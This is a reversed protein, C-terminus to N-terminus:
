KLAFLGSQTNVYVTGNAVTPSSQIPYGSLHLSLVEPMPLSSGTNYKCQSTDFAHLNGDTGGALLVNSIATPSSYNITTSLSQNCVLKNNHQLDFGYVQNGAAAYLIDYLDPCATGIYCLSQPQYEVAASSWMGDALPYTWTAAKANPDIGYLTGTYFVSWKVTRYYTASGIYVIGNFVLPSSYVDGIGNHDDWYIQGGKVGTSPNDDAYYFTVGGQSFATTHSDGVVILKGVNATIVAPSSTVSHGGPLAVSTWKPTGDGHFAYVHGDNAGVYLDGSNFVPSSTIVPTGPTGPNGPYISRSWNGTVGDSPSSGSISVDGAFFVFSKNNLNTAVGLAPSSDYYDDNAVNAWMPTCVRAGPHNLNPDPPCSPPGGFSPSEVVGNADYASLGYTNSGTYLAWTAGPLSNNRAVIPSSNGQSSPDSWSIKINKVNNLTIGSECFQFGTHAFDGRFRLWQDTPNLLTCILSQAHCLTGLSTLLFLVLLGFVASAPKSQRHAPNVSTSHASTSEDSLITAERDRNTIQTKM